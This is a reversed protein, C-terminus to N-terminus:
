LVCERSYQRSGLAWKISRDIRHMVYRAGRHLTVEFVCPAEDADEVFSAVMAGTNLADSQILGVRPELQAVVGVRM